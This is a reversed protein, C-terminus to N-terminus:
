APLQRRHLFNHFSVATAITLIFLLIIRRAGVKMAITEDAVTPNAKAVALSMLVAPVLWNTLAPLFLIFFQSFHVKNKQWVMLTSIDGFPLFAGGANAAIVINICALVVFKKNGGGMAMVVAGMLLATTLNDAIPSILFSLAGTIWFIRRLSFGRSVLYCRLAQFVNREEMANIYTM